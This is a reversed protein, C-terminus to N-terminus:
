YPHLCTDVVPDKQGNEEITVNIVETATPPKRKHFASGIQFRTAMSNCLRYICNGFCASLGVKHLIELNEVLCFNFIMFCSTLFFLLGYYIELEM